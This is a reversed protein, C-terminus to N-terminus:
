RCRRGGHLPHLRAGLDGGGVADGSVGDVGDTAAIPRRQHLDSVVPVYIVLALWFPLDFAIATFPLWLQADHRTLIVVCVFVSIALDPSGLTIESLGGRRYDDLYGVASAALMAEFCFCVRADVPSFLAIGGGHDARHLDGGGWRSASAEARGRDYAGAGQRTTM